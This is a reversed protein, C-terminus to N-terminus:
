THVGSEFQHAQHETKLPKYKTVDLEHVGVKGQDLILENFAPAVFFKGAVSADKRILNKAAEVFRGTNAFWFVGVTANNSIPNQQASETVMGADDLRVFSYRPHVSRFVLTGGDLKRQRFGDVVQSLDIDVLENASVILLDDDEDLQSAALLATCASGQTSEPMRIVSAGPVILDVVKDLHFQEADKELIAFAHKSEEFNSTNNVIKELLSMGDTEVLCIPYGSDETEYEVQGAALVLINISM